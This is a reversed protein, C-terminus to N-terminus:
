MQQLERLFEARTSDFAANNREITATCERSLNHMVASGLKSNCILFKQLNAFDGNRAFDVLVDEAATDERLRKKM